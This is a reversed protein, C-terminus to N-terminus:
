FSAAGSNIKCAVNSECVDMLIGEPLKAVKLQRRPRLRILHSVGGVDTRGSTQMQRNEMYQGLKLIVSAQQQGVYRVAGGQLLPYGAVLM